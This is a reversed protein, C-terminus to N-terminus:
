RRVDTRGRPSTKLASAPAEFLMPAMTPSRAPQPRPLASKMAVAGDTMM